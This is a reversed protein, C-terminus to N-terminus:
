DAVYEEPVGSITGAAWPQFRGGRVFTVTGRNELAGSVRLLSDCGSIFMEGENVVTGSIEEAGTFSLQGFNTLRCAFERGDEGSVDLKGCNTIVTDPDFYQGCGTPLLEGHEGVDVSCGYLEMSGCGRLMGSEVRVEARTLRMGGLSNVCRAGSLQIVAEENPILGCRLLLYGQNKVTLGGCDLVDSVSATAEDRVTFVGGGLDIPGDSLLYGDEGAVTLGAGEMTLSSVDPVALGKTLILDETLTLSVGDSLVIWTCGRDAKAQYLEEVSSVFRVGEWEGMNERWDFPLATGGMEQYISFPEMDPGYQILGVNYCSNLATDIACDPGTNWLWGVNNLEATSDTVAIEGRNYMAACNHLASYAGMRIFGENVFRGRDLLTVRGIRDANLGELLLEGGNYVYCGVFDLYYEEGDPATVPTEGEPANGGHFLTGLNYFSTQRFQSRPIGLSGLNVVTNRSDNHYGAGLDAYVTGYNVFLNSDMTGDNDWDGMVVRGRITGRNILISGDLTWCPRDEETGAGSYDAWPTTVTVGESILVPVRNNRNGGEFLEMDADIVIPVGGRGKGLAADLEELTTVHVAESFLGEISAAELRARVEEGDVEVDDRQLWEVLEAAQAPSDMQADASPEAGPQTSEATGSLEGAQVAGPRNPSARELFFPRAAVLVVLALAAAAGMLPWSRKPRAADGMSVATGPRRERNEGEASAGGYLGAHFEGVSQFREKPQVRMGRLLADEQRPTLDAGLRRPPILEDEVLRDLAQPPKCGTLCFYITAALAYVDTWPGQGRSQYQEVPAYGHKLSITMTNVGESANRACGFDLLRVSGKELMLNEPSIDRHILGGAHMEELAFFLPEMLELLEAAPIRGGRREALAQFTTGEVYEMVIYATHNEEFFDRVGVIVPQKDMVAIARAEQLFKRLGADYGAAAAGTCRVVDLSAGAMRGAKDTPFYEKIAVKLELQLDRGVYTVGFGGEGLVGGVLYREKLVTGPPLHHPSPKYDAGLLGCARCSQGEEVPGMCRPCFKHNM